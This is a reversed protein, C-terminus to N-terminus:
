VTPEKKSSWSFFSSGLYVVIVPREVDTLRVAQGTPTRTPRYRTLLDSWWWRHYSSLLILYGQHVPFRKSPLFITNVLRSCINVQNILLKASILGPRTFTFYDLISRYLTPNFFPPSEEYYRKCPRALFTSLRKSNLM